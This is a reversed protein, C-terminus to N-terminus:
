KDGNVAEFGSPTVRTGCSCRFGRDVMPKVSFTTAEVKSAEHNCVEPRPRVEYSELKFSKHCAMCNALLYEPGDNTIKVYQFHGVHQCQEISEINILLAKHTSTYSHHRHERWEEVKVLTKDYGHYPGYVVKAERLWKQLKANAADTALKRRDYVDTISMFDGPEFKWSM